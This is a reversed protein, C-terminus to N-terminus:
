AKISHKFLEDYFPLVSEYLPLYRDALIRETARQKTFGTSKHVNEYWYEAWIGDYPKPGIQWSIMSEDFPIKLDGCLKRLIIPPDKLLEGSDLVVSQDDKYQSYIQYITEIGIDDSGPNAIIKAFSTILQLPNRIFFINKMEAIFDIDLNAIHHAMNKIFLNKKSNKYKLIDHIIKEPDTECNEIIRDM